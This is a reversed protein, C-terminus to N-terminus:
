DQRWPGEEAGLNGPAREIADTAAVIDARTGTKAAILLLRTAHDPAGSRANVSAFVDLLVNAADRLTVLKTGDALVVVHALKRRYNTRLSKKLM